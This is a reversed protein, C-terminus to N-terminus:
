LAVELKDAFLNDHAKVMGELRSGNVPPNQSKAWLHMLERRDHLIGEPVDARRVREERDIIQEVVIGKAEMQKIEIPDPAVGDFRVRLYENPRIGGLFKEDGPNEIIETRHRPAADLEIWETAGTETDLIKFGQPQGEFGFDRQRIAGVYFSQRADHFDGFLFHKVPLQELYERAVQFKGGSEPCTQNGNMLAGIVQVHAMFIDISHHGIMLEDIIPEARKSTYLWPLCMIELGRWNIVKPEHIVQILPRRDLFYLADASGAGSLDHNGPIVISEIGADALDVFTKVALDILSGTSGHNDGINGTNVVDGSHTVLDVRRRICEAVFAALQPALQHPDKGRIEWDATAAILM